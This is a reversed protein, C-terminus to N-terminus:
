HSAHVETQKFGTVRSVQSKNEAEEKELDIGYPKLYAALGPIEKSLEGRRFARERAKVKRTDEDEFPDHFIDTMGTFKVM